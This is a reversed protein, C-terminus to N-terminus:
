IITSHKKSVSPFSDIHWYGSSWHVNYSFALFPASIVINIHTDHKWGKRIGIKDKGMPSLLSINTPALSNKTWHSLPLPLSSLLRFPFSFNLLCVLLLYFFFLQIAVTFSFYFLLKLSVLFSLFLLLVSLFAGRDVERERKKLKQWHWCISSHLFSQSVSPKRIEM